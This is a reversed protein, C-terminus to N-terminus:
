GGSFVPLVAIEQGPRVPADEAAITHDLCVRVAPSLVAEGGAGLREALRRRLAAVTLGAAPISTEIRRGFREGLPGFLLVALVATAEQPPADPEFPPM